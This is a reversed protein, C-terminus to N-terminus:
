SAPVGESLPDPSELTACAGHRVFPNRARGRACTRQAGTGEAFRLWSPHLPAERLLVWVRRLTGARLKNWVKV